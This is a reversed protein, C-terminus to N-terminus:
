LRIFLQQSKQSRCCFFRGGFRGDDDKRGRRIAVSMYLLHLSENRKTKKNENKHEVCFAASKDSPCLQAAFNIVETVAMRGPSTIVFLHLCDCYCCRHRQFLLMIHNEALGSLLSLSFFSFSFVFFRIGVMM